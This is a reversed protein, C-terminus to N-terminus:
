RCPLPPNPPSSPGTWGAQLGLSAGLARQSTPGRGGGGRGSGETGVPSREPISNELVRGAVQGIHPPSGGAREPWDGAERGRGPRSGKAFIGRRDMQIRKWSALSTHGRRIRATCALEVCAGVSAYAHEWFCAYVWGVGVQPFPLLSGRRRDGGAGPAERSLLPSSASIGWGRPRGGDIRSHGSPRARHASGMRTGEPTVPGSALGGRDPVGQGGLSGLSPLVAAALQAAFPTDAEPHPAPSEKPSPPDGRPSATRPRQAAPEPGRRVPPGRRDGAPGGGDRPRLQLVAAPRQQPSPLRERPLFLDRGARPKDASLLRNHIWGLTVLGQQDQLLFLEEENETNCYDPGASQKPIIVHTVTFENRMLKGCLIGCTEVGRATNADALQLFQPCLTGPVVVQRLGDVLPSTESSSPGGPKLSRDVAPPQGPQPGAGPGPVQGARLPGPAPEEVGPVLPGEPPGPHPGGFEQEVRLRERELEQRRILEEFARFQDQEAQQQRQRAVREREEELQRQAALSRALVLAEREKRGNYEAFEKTYRTLLEKKLEEAKPFAIEKLKKITEKKEPINVTKYDRHKPLKEIFLTIYKNYLIFARETNGEELYVTAMRIIEVGSRFYRRPPIHDNVEVDSGVQILARVREEPPLSEDGHDPMAAVPRVCAPSPPLPGPGVEIM